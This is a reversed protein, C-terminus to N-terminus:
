DGGVGSDRGCGGSAARGGHNFDGHGRVQACFCVVCGYLSRFGNDNCVEQPALLCHRHRLLSGGLGCFCICPMPSYAARARPRHAGLGEQCVCLRAASVALRGPPVCPALHTPRPRHTRPCGDGLPTLLEPSCERPVPVMLLNPSCAPMVHSPQPTLGLADRTELPTRRAHSGVRLTPWPRLM